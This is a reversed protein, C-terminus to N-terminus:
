LCFLAGGLARGASLSIARIYFIGANCSMLWGRCGDRAFFGGAFFGSDGAAAARASDAREARRSAEGLFAGCIARQNPLSSVEVAGVSTSSAEDCEESSVARAALM